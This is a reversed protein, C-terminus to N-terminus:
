SEFIMLFHSETNEYILFGFRAYLHRAPNTKFVKLYIPKGSKRSLDTLFHLFCSGIGMNRTSERMHITVDAIRDPLVNYGLFGATMDNHIIKRFCTLDLAKAFSVTNLQTQMEDVWGGYYTDVYAHYCEKKTELWASLDDATVAEFRIGQALLDPNPQM